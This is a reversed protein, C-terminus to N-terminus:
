RRARGTGVAIREWAHGAGLWVRANACHAPALDGPTWWPHLHDSCAVGDVGAEEALVARHLLEQPAFREHSAGLVYAVGEPQNRRAWM